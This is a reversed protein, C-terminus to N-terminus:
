SEKGLTLVEEAVRYTPCGGRLVIVLEDLLAIALVAAGATMAAQPVWLPAPVVGPSVEHFVFSVYAFRGLYWTIYIAIITTVGLLGAEVWRRAGEGFLSLLMTVRIHAGGKLTGALAFFSAAALLFGAFEALSLVVFGYVPAGVLKLLGDVIRGALQAGVLLAIGVLCLAALWLSARYVSDLFSRM